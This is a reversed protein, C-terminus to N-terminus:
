RVGICVSTERRIGIYWMPFRYLCVTSARVEYVGYVKYGNPPEGPSTDSRWKNSKRIKKKILLKLLICVKCANVITCSPLCVVPLRRVSVSYVSYVRYPNTYSTRYGNVITLLAVWTHEGVLTRKEKLSPVSPEPGYGIPMDTQIPKHRERTFVPAFMRARACARAPGLLCLFAGAPRGVSANRKRNSPSPM